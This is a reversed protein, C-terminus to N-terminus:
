VINQVKMNQPSKNIDGIACLFFYGGFIFTKCYQKEFFFLNIELCM